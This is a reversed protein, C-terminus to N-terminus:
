QKVIRLTTEMDGSVLGVFYIGSPLSSMNLELVNGKDTGQMLKKGGVDYVSYGELEYLSTINLRDQVPNPFWDINIAFKDDVSLVEEVTITGFMTAPHIDCRYDNAGVVTFTYEFTQGSGTLTGSDFTEVSQGAINTVTHPAPDDWTWRVTDGQEITLSAAPGNVGIAWSLDFTTQAQITMSVLIAVVLITIKKM